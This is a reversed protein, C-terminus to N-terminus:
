FIVCLTLSFGLVNFYGVIQLFFLFDLNLNFFFGKLTLLSYFSYHVLVFLYTCNNVFSYQILFRSSRPFLVIQTICVDVPQIKPVPEAVHRPLRQYSPLYEPPLIELLQPNALIGVGFKFCM